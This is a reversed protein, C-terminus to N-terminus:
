DLGGYFLQIGYWIMENDRPEDFFTSYYDIHFGKKIQNIGAAPILIWSPFVASGVYGYHINGLDQGNLLEGNYVFLKSSTWRFTLKIDWEGGDTEKEYFYWLADTIPNNILLSFINNLCVNTNNFDHFKDNIYNEFETAHNRLLENFEETIDEYVNGGSQEYVCMQMTLNRKPLSGINDRMNVPNNLCYAFSNHGIVGQGTSLYVDANIFRCAAPDYYRSELYYWGTEEDYVYGRYRFPQYTGVTNALTGTAAFPKGWSDYTYEVVTTGSNDILKVVDNQANRLYYYTTFNDGNDVSYDVAVANGSADYSFRLVKATAGTGIKMGILVSGNYYYETVTGDVEKRLRLGDEDNRGREVEPLIPRLM